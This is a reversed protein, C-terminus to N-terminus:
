PKIKLTFIEETNSSFITLSGLEGSLTQRRSLRKMCSTTIITSSLSSWNTIVTATSLLSLNMSKMRSKWRELGPNNMTKIDQSCASHEIRIPNDLKLLTFTTKIAEKSSQLKAQRQRCMLSRKRRSSTPKTKLKSATVKSWQARQILLVPTKTAM